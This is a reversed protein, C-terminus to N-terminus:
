FGCTAHCSIPRSLHFIGASHIVCNCDRGDMRCFFYFVILGRSFHQIEAMITHIHASSESKTHSYECLM